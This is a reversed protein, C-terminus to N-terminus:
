DSLTQRLYKQCPNSSVQNSTSPGYCVSDIPNELDTHNRRLYCQMTAMVGTETGKDIRIYAPIVRSEYLYELYWKGIVEPRSNTDWIRLWLIKRSATDICGYIGLPFTSNQYGM